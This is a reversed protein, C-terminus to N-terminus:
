RYFFHLLLLNCNYAVGFFGYLKSFYVRRRRHLCLRWDYDLSLVRRLFFDNDLIFWVLRHAELRDGSDDDCNYLFCIRAFLRNKDVVKWLGVNLAPLRCQTHCCSLFVSVPCLSSLLRYFPFFPSVFLCVTHKFRVNLSSEAFTLPQGTCTTVNPILTQAPAVKEPMQYSGFSFISIDYRVIYGDMM